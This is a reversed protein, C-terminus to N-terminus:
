QSLRTALLAGRIVHSLQVGRHMHGIEQLVDVLHLRGLAVAELLVLHRAGDLQSGRWPRGQSRRM